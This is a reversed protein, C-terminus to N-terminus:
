NVTRTNVPRIQPMSAPEYPLSSIYDILQWMETENLPGTGGPASAGHAPMGMGPIGSYVRWFLDIPRRGGRYSGERLNRPIARRPTLLYPELAQRKDLEDSKEKIEVEKAEREEGKLEGLEKRMSSIDDALLSTDENFKRISESWDDYNDQQGDGLGTPGHCKVCNAKSGYFLENGAKVSALVETTPRDHPPITDETPVIINETATNWPETVEALLDNVIIDKLEPDKAPDLPADPELGEDAVYAILANEVQGRMSLYKVYEVLADIEDPPLLAFAPMATGPIGDHVIRRLDDDTPQAATYTSKFKFLGRRYDRPYPNLIAATPGHGDGNIGHCHACHRRYLGHKDGNETSFVPGAAMKLERKDLGTEEMAFPEDPTGFMAVMIDAIAQQHNSAINNEVMRMMDLRFAPPETQGCGTLTAISIAVAVIVSKSFTQYQM